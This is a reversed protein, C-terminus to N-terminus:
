PLTSGCTAGASACPTVACTPSIEVGGANGSAFVGAGTVATSCSLGVQKNNTVSVRAFATSGTSPVNQVRIGGWALGALDGPGNGTVTTNVISFSSGDLLIGGKACNDVLVSDLRLVSNGDAVIGIDLPSTVHVSRIYLHGGTLHLAPGTVGVIGATKQGIISLEPAANQAVWSPAPTAGRLVIVKKSGIALLVQELSCLPKASTGADTSESCTSGKQVYITEADTACRGDQHSMCVGPDAGLKAFCQDDSTCAVCANTTLDCIPKTADKSCDASTACAVCAGSPGCAPLSSLRGSCFTASLDKCGKCTGDPSCLPTTGSCDQDKTCQPQVEPGGEGAGGDADPHAESVDNGADPMMSEVAADGDADGGGDGGDGTSIPFCTGDAGPTPELNCYFGSACDSTQDCRGPKLVSYCATMSAVVLGLVFWRMLREM